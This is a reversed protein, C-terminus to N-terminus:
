SVASGQRVDILARISALWPRLAAQEAEFAKIRPRHRDILAIEDLGELLAIRQADDIDIPITAGQPLCITKAHLDVRLIATEPLEALSEIGDPPLTIPLIGNKLCNLSFIEGFSPAIVVRVGCDHLAWVAHERSSGCGFNPGALLIRAAHADPRNLPHAADAAREDAFLHRGFGHRDLALLFRAPLIADTDINAAPLRIFESEVLAFKIM